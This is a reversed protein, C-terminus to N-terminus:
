LHVSRLDDETRPKGRSELDRIGFDEEWGDIGGTLIAVRQEVDEDTLQLYNQLADAYWGAARPGRGNSKSCHFVLCAM